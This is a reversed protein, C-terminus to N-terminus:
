LLRLLALKVNANKKISQDAALAHGIMSELRIDQAGQLMQFRLMSLLIDILRLADVRNGAHAYLAKLKDYPKASIIKKADAAIEQYSKLMETDTALQKILLPRGSALFLIQQAVTADLRLSGVLSRDQAASTRHLSHHQCRSYITPLLAGESSSLLIFHLGKNPEELTKLLSNQANPTMVDAPDIIVIRRAHAFTSLNDLKARIQEVGIQSKGEVPSIRYIESPEAGILGEVVTDIDLGPEAELILSQPLNKALDALTRRDRDAITSVETM